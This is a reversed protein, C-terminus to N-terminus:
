HGAAKAITTNGYLNILILNANAKLQDFFSAFGKPKYAPIKFRFKASREFAPLSFEAQQFKFIVSRFVVQVIEKRCYIAVPVQRIGAAVKLCAIHGLLENGFLLGFTKGALYKVMFRIHTDSVRAGVALFLLNDLSGFSSYNNNLWSIAEMASSCVMAQRVQPFQLNGGM